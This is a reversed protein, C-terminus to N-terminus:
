LLISLFSLRSQIWIGWKLFLGECARPVPLSPLRSYLLIERERKRERERGQKRLWVTERKRKEGSQLPRLWAAVILLLADPSSLGQLTLPAPYLTPWHFLGLVSESPLTIWRSPFLLRGWLVCVCLCSFVPFIFVNCRLNLSSQEFDHRQLFM